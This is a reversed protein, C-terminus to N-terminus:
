NFRGFGRGWRSGGNGPTAGAGTRGHKSTPRAQHGRPFALAGLLEYTAASTVLSQNIETIMKGCCSKAKGPRSRRAAFINAHSALRRLGRLGKIQLLVQTVEADGQTVQTVEADSGRRGGNLWITPSSTVLSQRIRKGCFLFSEGFATLPPFPPILRFLNRRESAIWRQFAPIPALFSGQRAPDYGKAFAPRAMTGDAPRRRIRRVAVPGTAGYSRLPPPHSLSRCEGRRPLVRTGRTVKPTGGLTEWTSRRKGTRFCGAHFRGLAGDGENQSIPRGRRLGAFAPTMQPGKTKRGGMELKGDDMLEYEMMKWRREKIVLRHIRRVFRKNCIAWDGKVQQFVVFFLEQFVGIKKVKMKLRRGCFRAEQGVEEAAIAQM